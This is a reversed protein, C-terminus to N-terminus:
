VIGVVGLDYQARKIRIRLNKTYYLRYWKNSGVEINNSNSENDNNNEFVVTVLSFVLVPFWTLILPLSITLFLRFLDCLPTAFDIGTFLYTLLTSNIMSTIM